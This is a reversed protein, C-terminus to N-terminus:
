SAVDPELSRTPVACRIWAVCLLLEAIILLIGWLEEHAAEFFRPFHVGIYFLSIVRGLNLVLLAPVGILVGRAKHVLSAPFAIILACLFWIYEFASCAPLVNIAYKASTITSGIVHTKEGV